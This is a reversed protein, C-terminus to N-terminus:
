SADKTALLPECRWEVTEVKEAVEVLPVDVSPDPVKKTVVETGTVVRTCVADRYATLKITLGHLSGALDFYSATPGGFDRVAKDLRIPLARAAAVLAARPDDGDLFHMTMPTGDGSGQYPVPLEPNARLLEALQELGACYDERATDDEM